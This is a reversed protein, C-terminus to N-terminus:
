SNITRLALAAAVILAGFAFSISTIKRM